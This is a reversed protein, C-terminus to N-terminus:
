RSMKGIATVCFNIFFFKNPSNTTMVIRPHPFYVRFPDGMLLGRDVPCYFVTVFKRQRDIEYREGDAIARGHERKQPTPFSDAGTV